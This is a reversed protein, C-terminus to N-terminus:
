TGVGTGPVYAIPDRRGAGEFGRLRLDNDPAELPPELQLMDRLPAIDITQTM